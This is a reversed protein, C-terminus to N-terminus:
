KNEFYTKLVPKLDEIEYTKYYKGDEHKDRLWVVLKEFEGLEAEELCLEYLNLQIKYENLPTELFTNFIKLLTKGKYNKHLDENSKWDIICYKNTLTNYTILDLTGAYRYKKHYVILEKVIPKYNPNDLFFQIVALEKYRLVRNYISNMYDEAFKHVATGEECSKDRKDNWEKLIEQKTIGRSKAVFGAIERNFPEKFSKKISSVSPYNEGFVKYSHDWEEFEVEKFKDLFIEKTLIM